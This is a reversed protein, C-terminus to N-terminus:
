NKRTSSKSTERAKLIVQYPGYKHQIETFPDMFPGFPYDPPKKSIDPWDKKLDIEPRPMSNIYAAVDWADEDSLQPADFSVGWPMNSKVFAALRGLRYMGAGVTYSNEGWVPPNLFSSSGSIVMGQGNEGHCHACKQNYIPKGKEPDAPRELFSVPLLGSGEPATGKPVDQGLWVMYAVIAKMELSTSDLSKGHLSRVICDNVRKEISEIAGYRPRFKPYTSAVGSFNNGFLKTGADLHCNTCRMGNSSKQIVGDPGLYKETRQILDRGYFILAGKENKPITSVLPAAWRTSDTNANSPQETSFHVDLAKYTVVILMCGVFAVIATIMRLLSSVTQLHDYPKEM